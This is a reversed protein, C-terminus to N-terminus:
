CVGLYLPKPTGTCGGTDGLLATCGAADELLAPCGAAGELLAMFDSQHEAHNISRLATCGAYLGSSYAKIQLATMSLMEPVRILAACGANLMKQAANLKTYTTSDNRLIVAGLARMILAVTSAYHAGTPTTQSFARTHM